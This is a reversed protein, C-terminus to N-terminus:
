RASNLLGDIHVLPSRSTYGIASRVMVGPSPGTRRHRICAALAREGHQRRVRILCESAIFLVRPMMVKALCCREFAIERQSVTQVIEGNLRM